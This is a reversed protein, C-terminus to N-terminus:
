TELVCDFDAGDVPHLHILFNRSEYEFEIKEPQWKEPEIERMAECDPFAQAGAYHCLGTRAGGSL